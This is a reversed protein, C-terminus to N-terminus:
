GLTYHRKCNNTKDTEAIKRYINTCINVDFGTESFTHPAFSETRTEGPALPLVDDISITMGDPYKRMYTNSKEATGEGQNQITYYITTDELFKTGTYEYWVETIVLDPLMEKEPLEEKGELSLADLGLFNVKPEFCNILDENTCVVYGTGIQLVDGDTFSTKGEFFIETSYYIRETEGSRGAIVADLGFDVGRDPIGAPVSAPLLDANKVVINGNRASLLDGDLFRTEEVRHATGETSFWIDIEYEKLMGALLGLNKLWEDRSKGAAYDLFASIHDLDGIFQVADLGLDAKPIEFKDLLAINPISAGNTTLLDGATFNGRPDDLETSFAVLKAKRDIVYAADLGLDIEIEFRQLLERNRLFMECGPGLLDGDSIIINGDPPKPGQTIFEEETSFYVGRCIDAKELSSPIKVEILPDPMKMDAEKSMVSMMTLLSFLMIAAIVLAFQKKM